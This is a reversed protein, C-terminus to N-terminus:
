HTRCLLYTKKKFKNFQLIFLFNIDHFMIIQLSNSSQWYIQRVGVFLYFCSTYGFKESFLIIYLGTCQVGYPNLCYEHTLKLNNKNTRRLKKIGITQCIFFKKLIFKTM